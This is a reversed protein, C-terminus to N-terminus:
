GGVPVRISVDRREDRSLRKQLILRRRETMEDLTYINIVTDPERPAQPAAVQYSGFAGGGTGSAAGQVSSMLAASAGKLLAGMAIAAVGAAIAPAGSLSMISRKVAEVVAGIGLATIGAGILMEGLVDLIAALFRRWPQDAGELAGLMSAMLTGAADAMTRIAGVIAQGVAQAIGEAIQEAKTKATGLAELFRDILEELDELQQREDDTLAALAANAQRYVDMADLVAEAAAGETTVLQRATDRIEHLRQRYSAASEEGLEFHVRLLALAQRLRDVETPTDAGGGVPGISFAAGATSVGELTQRRLMEAEILALVRKNSAERGFADGRITGRLLHEHIYRNQEELRRKLEVLQEGSLGRISVETMSSALAGTAQAAGYAAEYIERTLQRFALAAGALGVLVVGGPRLLTGLAGLSRALASTGGAAQAGAFAMAAAAAAKYAAAIKLLLDLVFALAAVKALVVLLDAHAVAWEAVRVAAAAAREALRVAAEIWAAVRDANKELWVAGRQLAATVADLARSTGPLRVVLRALEDRMGVLRIKAQATRDAMDGTTARLTDLEGRMLHFALQLLVAKRQGESLGQVNLKDMERTLTPLADDLLMVSGRLMGTVIKSTLTEVDEGTAKAKLGVFELALAFDDLTIAGPGLAANAQAMLQFSSVTGSTATRLRELLADTSLGVRKATSEFVTAVSEVKAGRNALYAFASGAAGLAVTMVQAVRRFTRGLGDLHGRFTNLVHRARDRASIILEIEHTEDAM